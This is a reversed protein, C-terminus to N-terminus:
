RRKKKVPLEFASPAIELMAPLHGITTEVPRDQTRAFPSAFLELSAADDDIGLLPQSVRNLKRAEQRTKRRHAGFDGEETMGIEYPEEAGERVGHLHRGEGVALPAEIKLASQHAKCFAEGDRKVIKRARNGIKERFFREDFLRARSNAIHFEPDSNERLSIWVALDVFAPRM